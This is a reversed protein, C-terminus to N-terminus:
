GFVAKEVQRLMESIARIKLADGSMDFCKSEEIIVELYNIRVEKFMDKDVGSKSVIEKLREILTDTSQAATENSNSDQNPINTM